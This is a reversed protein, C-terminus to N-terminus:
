ILFILITINSLNSSIPINESNTETVIQDLTEMLDNYFKIGYSEVVFTNNDKKVKAYRILKDTIDVGLCEQM